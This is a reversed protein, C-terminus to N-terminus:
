IKLKYNLIYFRISGTSGDPNRSNIFTKVTKLRSNM